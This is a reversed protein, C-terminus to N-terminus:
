FDVELNKDAVAIGNEDAYLYQGAKIEANAFHLSGNVQGRGRKDSKVPHPHLALVGIDLMKLIEVDRVCGNIVIGTWGNELAMTGILDGLLACNLSGGGDVVLVRGAGTETLTERVKSNDEYCKVTVVPGCFKTRGGYNSFGPSLVNLQDPYQDCLDPLSLTM